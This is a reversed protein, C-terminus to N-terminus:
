FHFTKWQIQEPLPFQECKKLRGKKNKLLNSIGDVVPQRKRQLCFYIRLVRNPMEERKQKPKNNNRIVKKSDNM